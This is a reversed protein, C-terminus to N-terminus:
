PVLIFSALTPHDERLEMKVKNLPAFLPALTLRLKFRALTHSNSGFIPVRDLIFPDEGPEALGYNVTFAARYGADKTAQEIADNYEGCPYAIFNVQKGLNWEIAQKSGTLQHKAEDLDPAKTLEEHSLTHSEFDILGSQQMDQVASWTLYNPYTNVYDSILFITAKLQYKELVPFAHNYNDLYGDDFTIIVPKEPLQTGNEWADLMDAPTIATYGNESLYKMQAEFQETNVTLANKETDNIQHYNLVPIGGKASQFLSVVVGIVAIFFVAAAALLWRYQKRM